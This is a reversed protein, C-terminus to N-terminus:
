RNTLTPLNTKPLNTKNIWLAILAEGIHYKPEGTSIRLRVISSKHVGVCHAIDRISMDRDSNQIDNILQTWDIRRNM